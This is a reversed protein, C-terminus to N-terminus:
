ALAAQRELVAGYADLTERAMREISFRDEVQKRARLALADRGSAGLSLAERLAAALLAPDSPSVRWGTRKAAETEPPALVTEPVAGLDSVVVPTGVAQAEVAVRGFAEPEISPVVVVAAALLAAPMDACAGIKRVVAGLGANAIAQDIERGSGGRADGVFVLRLDRMGEDILLRAAEILVKHGKWVSPRAILLAIREDPAIQWSQRLSQVRSPDITNPAFPKLDVGPRILTIHGAAWPYLSSITAAAFKSGAIVTDGRAMVSNYRQRIISQGPSIQHLSTVLPVKLGRTAAYSVWGGPRSRAHVLDVREQAIVAKLKRVALMMAFPNKAQSPFELWVGGKAQLESVLRGAPAAVLPRAGIDALAAAVDVAARDSETQDLAPAVQLITRGALRHTGRRHLSFGLDENM